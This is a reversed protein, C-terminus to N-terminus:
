GVSFGMGRKVATIWAFVPSEVLSPKVNPWRRLRQALTLGLNNSLQHKSPIDGTHGPQAKVNVKREIKTTNELQSQRDLQTPSNLHEEEEQLLWRRVSSM